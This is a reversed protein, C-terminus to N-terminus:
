RRAVGCWIPRMDHGRTLRKRAPAMIHGYAYQQGFHAPISKSRFAVPLFFSSERGKYPLMVQGRPWTISGYLPLAITTSTRASNLSLVLEDGDGAAAHQQQAVQKGLHKLLLCLLWAAVIQEHVARQGALEVRDAHEEAQDKPGRSLLVWPDLAHPTPARRRIVPSRMVRCSSARSSM